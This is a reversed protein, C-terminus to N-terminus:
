SDVTKRQVAAGRSSVPRLGARFEEMTNAISLPLAALGTIQAPAPTLVAHAPVNRTVVCGASIVAGEGIRLVRGASCAIVAHPGVFAEKEIIIRGSGRTHAVLLARISIQVRDHLEISEPYEEDFYVDDGIFVDNGIKVGRARHLLPRLTTSGPSLRVLRNLM